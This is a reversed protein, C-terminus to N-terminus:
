TFCEVIKMTGFGQLNPTNTEPTYCSVEIGMAVVLTTGPQQLAPQVFTATLNIDEPETSNPLWPTFSSVSLRELEGIVPAYRREDQRWEYDPLQAIVLAIRYSAFRSPWSLRSNSKFGEMTLTVSRRDDSLGVRYWHSFVSDFPHTRNFNLLTLQPAAKSSEISRYGRLHQDDLKQIRKGLAVIEAFYGGQHLHEIGALSKRLQSAWMGCAKFENMNERTRAFAPNNHILEKSAGGKTSVIYRKLHKDYYSRLNGVSGTFLISGKLQAM